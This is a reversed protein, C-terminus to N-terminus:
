LRIMVPFSNFNYPELCVAMMGSYRGVDGGLNSKLTEEFETVPHGHYGKWEMAITTHWKGSSKFFDVRVMRQDTTFNTM